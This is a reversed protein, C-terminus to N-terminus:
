WKWFNGNIFIMSDNLLREKQEEPIDYKMIKTEIFERKEDDSMDRFENYSMEKLFEPIIMEKYVDM